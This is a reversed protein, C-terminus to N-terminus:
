PPTSRPERGARRRVAARDQDAVGAALEEGAGQLVGDVRVAHQGALLGLLRQAGGAGLVDVVRQGPAPLAARRARVRGTRRGAAAPPARGPAPPRRGPGPGPRASRRPRRACRPGSRRAPRPRGGRAPGRDDRRDRRQPQVVGVPHHQEGAVPDDGLARWSSSSAVSGPTGGPRRRGPGPRPRPARRTQGGPSRPRLGPPVPVVAAGTSGGSSTRAGSSAAMACGARPAAAGAGAAGRAPRAPRVGLRAAGLAAPRHGVVAGHHANKARGPGRRPAADNTASTTSLAARPPRPARRVGAARRRQDVADGSAPRRRRGRAREGQHDHRHDRRLRQEGERGACRSATRGPGAPTRARTRRGSRDQPQRQAPDLAGAGAVQDGADGAVDARHAARHLVAHRHGIM